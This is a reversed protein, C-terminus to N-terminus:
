GKDDVYNEFGHDTIFQKIDAISDGYMIISTGKQLFYGGLYALMPNYANYHFCYAIVTFM